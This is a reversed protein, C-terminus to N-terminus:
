LKELRNAQTWLGLYQGAPTKVRAGRGNARSPRDLGDADAHVVPADQLAEGAVALEVAEHKGAAIRQQVVRGDGREQGIALAAAASCNGSACGATAPTTVPMALRSSTAVLAACQWDAM